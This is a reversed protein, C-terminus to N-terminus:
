AAQEARAGTASQSEAEREHLKLEFLYTAHERESRREREAQRKFLEKVDDSVVILIRRM